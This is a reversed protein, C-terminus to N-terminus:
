GMNYFNIQLMIKEELVSNVKRYKYFRKGNQILAEFAENLAKAKSVHDETKTPESM